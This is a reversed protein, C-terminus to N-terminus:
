DAVINSDGSFHLIDDIYDSLFSFQRSQKPSHDAIKRFSAIIPKHDTFVVCHRGEIYRRVKQTAAFVALLEQDFVSYNREAVSLKRSFFALPVSTGDKGNDHM